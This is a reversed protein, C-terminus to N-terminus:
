HNSLIILAVSEVVRNCQHTPICAARDADMLSVTDPYLESGLMYVRQKLTSTYVM